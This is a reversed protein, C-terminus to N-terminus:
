CVVEWVSYRISVDFGEVRCSVKSSNIDEGAPEGALWIAVGAFPSALVVGAVQPRLHKSNDSLTSRTPDHALVNEPKKSPRVPKAEFLHASAQFSFPVLYM